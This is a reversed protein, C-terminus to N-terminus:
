CNLFKPSYYTSHQKDSVFHPEVMGLLKLELTTLALIVNNHQAEPYPDITFPLLMAHM